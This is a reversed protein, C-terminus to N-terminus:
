ATGLGGDLNRRAFSPSPVLAEFSDPCGAEQPSSSRLLRLCNEDSVIITVSSVIGTMSLYQILPRRGSLHGEAVGEAVQSFEQGQSSGEPLKYKLNIKSTSMGRYWVPSPTRDQYGVPGLLCVKFNRNDRQRSLGLNGRIQM